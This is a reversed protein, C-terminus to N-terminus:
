NAAKARRRGLAFVCLPIMTLLLASPEPVASGTRFIISETESGTFWSTSSTVGDIITEDAFSTDPIFVTVSEGPDADIWREDIFVDGTNEFVISTGDGIHTVPDPMSLPIRGNLTRFPVITPSAGSYANGLGSQLYRTAFSVGIVNPYTNSARLSTAEATLGSVDVSGSVFIRIGGNEETIDVTVVAYAQASFALPLSLAAFKSLKM